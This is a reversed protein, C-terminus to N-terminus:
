GMPPMMALAMLLGGPESSQSLPPLQPTGPRTAMTWDDLGKATGRNIALNYAAFIVASLLGAGIGLLNLKLLDLAYGGVLMFCGGLSLGLILWLERRMQYSRTVVAYLAVFLPATYELMVAIAVNTASIAIYYVYSVGFFLGGLCLIFGVDGKRLRFSKGLVLMLSGLAVTAIISRVGTLVLPRVAEHFLLKAFTGALGWFLAATTIFLFGRVPHTASM